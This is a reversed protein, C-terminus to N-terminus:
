VIGNKWGDRKVTHEVALNNLTSEVGFEKCLEDFAEQQMHATKRRGVGNNDHVITRYVLVWLNM